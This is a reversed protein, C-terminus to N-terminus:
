GFHRDNQESYLIINTHVVRGYPTKIVVFVYLTTSVKKLKLM